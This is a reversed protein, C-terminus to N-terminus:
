YFVSQMHIRCTARTNTKCWGHSYTNYLLSLIICKSKNIMVWGELHLFVTSFIKCTNINYQSEILVKNIFNVRGAPLVQFVLCAPLSLLHQHEPLCDETIKYLFHLFHNWFIKKIVFFFWNMNKVHTQFWLKRNIDWTDGSRKKSLWILAFDQLSGCICSQDRGKM